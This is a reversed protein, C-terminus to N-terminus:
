RWLIFSPYPKGTVSPCNDSAAYKLDPSVFEDRPVSSMAEMVRPDLKDKGIVSRTSDVESEITALIRQLENEM